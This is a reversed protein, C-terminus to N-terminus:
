AGFFQLFPIAKALLFFVLGGLIWIGFITFYYKATSDSKFLKALGISLVIYSWISFVDLKSFIFGVISSKDSGLFSALSTSDLFNGLAFSTITTIIVGLIAIYFTMGNAVLVSQYTGNGKLLFKVFLYYVGSILFFVIFGGIFVAFITIIIQLPGYNTMREEIMNIQQDAQEQTLKGESVAQQLNKQIKSIQKDVIQSHLANNSNILIQTISIVTFLLIAPLLWDVIKLPFKSIREFTKGPETFIGIMKDSHNFEEEQAETVTNELNSDEINDM